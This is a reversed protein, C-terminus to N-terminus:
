WKISIDKFYPLRHILLFNLKQPGRAAEPCFDYFICTKGFQFIKRSRQRMNTRIVWSLFVEGIKWGYSIVKTCRVLMDPRLFCIQNQVVWFFSSFKFKKSVVEQRSKLCICFVTSYMSLFHPPKKLIDLPYTLIQNKRWLIKSDERWNLSVYKM